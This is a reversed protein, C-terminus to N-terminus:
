LYFTRYVLLGVFISWSLPSIFCSLCAGLTSDILLASQGHVRTFLCPAGPAYSLYPSILIGSHIFHGCSINFSRNYAELRVKLLSSTHVKSPLTTPSQRTTYQQEILSDHRDQGTAQSASSCMRALEEQHHKLVPPITAGFGNGTDHLRFIHAPM